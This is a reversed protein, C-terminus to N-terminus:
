VDRTLEMTSVAAAMFGIYIALGGMRPMIRHHVKRANPRDVAGIRFALKKVFPTLVWSIILSISLALLYTKM